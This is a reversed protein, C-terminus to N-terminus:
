SGARLDFKWLDSVRYNFLFLLGLSTLAGILLATQIGIMDAAFGLLANGLLPGSMYSLM